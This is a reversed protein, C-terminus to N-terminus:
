FKLASGAGFELDQPPGATGRVCPSADSAPMNNRGFSFKSTAVNMIFTCEGKGKKRKGVKELSKWKKWKKKVKRVKKM